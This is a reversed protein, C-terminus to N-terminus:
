KLYDKRVKQNVKAIIGNVIRSAESSNSDKLINAKVISFYFHEEPLQRELGKLIEFAEERRNAMHLCYSLNIKVIPSKTLSYLLQYCDIIGNWYSPDFSNATMHNSVILAELYYKNLKIPKELYHFGLEIFDNDWQDIEQKFFPIFENNSMKAPIRALNFCFLAILHKTSINGFKKSLAKALALSELCLDDNVISAIKEDFSDFGINFVAYLIEEVIGIERDLIESRKFHKNGANLQLTKKARNIGKYIAESTLLTCESIEKVHLGFIDKLILLIKMQPSLGEMASFFLITQLRLDEQIIEEQKENFSIGLNTTSTHSEKRIQNILDNRAVRYLWNERNEPIGDHKWVKLSKYFSNQIADEIQNVYQTGFQCFLSAFLKGYLKRYSTEIESFPTSNNKNKM